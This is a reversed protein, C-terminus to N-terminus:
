NRHFFIEAAVLLILLIIIVIGVIEKWSLSIIFEGIADIMM